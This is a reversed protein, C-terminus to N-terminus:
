GRVLKSVGHSVLLGAIKSLPAVGSARSVVGNAEAFFVFQIEGVSRFILAAQENDGSRWIARLHGGDTLVVAPMITASTRVFGRLIAMSAANFPLDEDEALEELEACRAEVEQMLQQGLDDKISAVSYSKSSSANAPTSTTM